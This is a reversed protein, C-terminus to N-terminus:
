QLEKVQGNETVMILVRPFDFKRDSLQDFPEWDANPAPSAQLIRTILAAPSM